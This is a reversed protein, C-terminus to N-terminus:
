NSQRHTAYKSAANLFTSILPHPATPTSKAQPVFLTGVFFPNDKLEVIRIEGEADSGAILLEGERLLPVVEPNVGFNCYYNEEVQAQGYASGAISDPKISLTMCRGVLSCALRSLFLRSAYPDYEAHAADEFGLGNRAYELIMHQFGGCTGLCPIRSTRAFCIAELTLPLNKYPSGPAIWIADAQKLVHPEVDTTSLWRSHISLGLPAAAHELSESTLRHLDYSPDYEGLLLIQLPKDQNGPSM